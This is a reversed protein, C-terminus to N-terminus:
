LRKMVDKLIEFDKEMINKLQPNYLAAAPHYMPIVFFKGLLNKVEFIKGHEESISGHSVGYKDLIYNMSFRGLTCIIKPKLFYIQEDLYSHCANIEDETPDRNGPPRCKIINTIFVDKRDIGIRGLLEDLFKGARGVFPIGEVDENYGPAEGVLMIKASSSGAGPVPNRRTKYLPCKKCKKIENAIDNLNM